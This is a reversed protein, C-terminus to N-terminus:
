QQEGKLAADDDGKDLRALDSVPFGLHVLKDPNIICRVTQIAGDAIDLALVNVLGGNSDFSLAGPQGNVLALRYTIDAQHAKTFISHLLRNVRDRGFIPRLVANAKGGGDGYFAVDAALFDVLGALSGTDVAAFFRRALEQQAQQDATFRSKGSDIRKRARVFIQRCNDDSKQVISAIEDYDYDFIERLLFVAREVPSLTELLSLLALSLSDAQEAHEAPDPETSALLPEPLWIGVYTERRVRATRLTDIALRTTVTTLFAEPSEIAAGEMTARHLRLYAEQVVDEAEGVSGLMRYAISFMRSRYRDYAEQGTAPPGSQNTM